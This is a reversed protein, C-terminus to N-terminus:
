AQDRWRSRVLSEVWEDVEERKRKVLRQAEKGAALSVLVGAAGIAFVDVVAVSVGAGTMFLLAAGLLCGFVAIRACAAYVKTASMLRGDVDVLAANAEAQSEEPSRARVIQQVLDAEWADRDTRMVRDLRHADAPGARPGLVRALLLPQFHLATGVMHLQRLAWLSAFGSCVFAVLVAVM